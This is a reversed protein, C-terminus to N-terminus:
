PADQAFEFAGPDEGEGVLPVLVGLGRDDDRGVLALVFGVRLLGGVTWVGLEAGGAFARVGLDLVPSQEALEAAAGVLGAM